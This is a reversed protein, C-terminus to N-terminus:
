EPPLASYDVRYVSAYVVDSELQRIGAMRFSQEPVLIPHEALFPDASDRSVDGFEYDELTRVFHTPHFERILALLKPDSWSTVGATEPTVLSGYDLVNLGSYYGIIGIDTAIAVCGGEPTRERVYDAVQRHVVWYDRQFSVIRPLTQLTLVLVFCLATLGAAAVLVGRLKKANVRSEFLMEFAALGGVTVLPTVIILYRAAIEVCKIWYFFMLFLAQVAGLMIIQWRDPNARRLEPKRLLAIFLAFLGLLMVTYTSGVIAALRFTVVAIPMSGTKASYTTPLPSGFVSVSFIVWPVLVLLCIVGGIIAGSLGGRKWRWIVRDIQTLGYLAMLEPRAMIGFGFIVATRWPIRRNRDDMHALFGLLVFTLGMSTEMSGWSFRLFWPDLVLLAVAALVWETRHLVRRAVLFLAIVAAAAWLCALIKANALTASSFFGIVVLLMIWLPSSSGQSWHPPDMVNYTWGNGHVINEIYRLHIFVDDIGPYGWLFLVKTILPVLAAILVFGWVLPGRAPALPQRGSEEPNALKGGPESM